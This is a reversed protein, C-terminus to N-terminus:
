LHIVDGLTRSVEFFIDWQAASFLNIKESFTPARALLTPLREALFTHRKGRLDSKILCATELILFGESSILRV